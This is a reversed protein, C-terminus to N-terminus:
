VLSNTWFIIKSVMESYYAGLLLFTHGDLHLASFNKAQGVKWFRVWHGFILIRKWPSKLQTTFMEAAGQIYM